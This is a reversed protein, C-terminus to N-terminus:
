PKSQTCLLAATLVKPRYSFKGMLLPHMSVEWVALARNAQYSLWASMTIRMWASSFHAASTDVDVQQRELEAEAEALLAAADQRQRKPQPERTM